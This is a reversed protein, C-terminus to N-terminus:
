YSYTLVKFIYKFSRDLSRLFNCALGRSVEAVDRWKGTDKDQGFPIVLTM